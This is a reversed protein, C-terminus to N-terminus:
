IVEVEPYLQKVRGLVEMGSMRPLMLDLLMVDISRTKLLDLAAAGDEATDVAFGKSILLRAVSRRLSPEDDVLLIRARPPSEGPTRSTGVAPPPHTSPASSIM